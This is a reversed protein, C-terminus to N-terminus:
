KAKGKQVKIEFRATSYARTYQELHQDPDLELALSALGPPTEAPVRGAVSVKIGQGPGLGEVKGQGLRVPPDGGHLLIAIAIPDAAGDGHNEVEVNVKFPEGVRVLAKDPVFDKLQLWPWRRGLVKGVYIAFNNWSSHTDAYCHAFWVGQGDAPDVSIGACDAWALATSSPAGLAYAAEGAKLLRSPRIDGEGALWTSFRIEPDITEGTRSYVLVLDGHNNVEIAPWGYAFHSDPDDEIVNNLGFVRERYGAQGQGPVNPWQSLDFSMLRNAALPDGGSGWDARDNGSLILQNDHAAAKLPDNGVNGMMIKDTSGQQPADETGGVADVQVEVREIQQNPGLPDSLGWLLIRDAATWPGAFYARAPSGRHVAPQLRASPTGDPNTLDWFQWGSPGAKGAAMDDAPFFVLHAYRNWNSPNEVHNTQYICRQDVGLCPYDGWDGDQFVVDSAQGDHAVADWYYLNWGDLPNESISVAACFKTRNTTSKGSIDKVVLCGTWFRKRYHDFISRTDFYSVGGLASDLGLSSFFDGVYTTPQLLTGARDYFGLTTRTTVLVHTTSVALQTDACLDGGAHFAPWSITPEPTQKVTTHARPSERKPVALDPGSPREEKRHTLWAEVEPIPPDQEGRARKEESHKSLRQLAEADLWKPGHAMLEEGQWQPTKQVM